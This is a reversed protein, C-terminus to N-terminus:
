AYGPFREATFNAKAKAKMEKEKGLFQGYDIFYRKAVEPMAWRRRRNHFSRGLDVIKGARELQRLARRFSVHESETIENKQLAVGVIAISDIEKSQKALVELCLQQVKGM